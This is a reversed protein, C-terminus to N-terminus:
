RGNPTVFPRAIASFESIVIGNMRRHRASWGKWGGEEGEEDEEGGAEGLDQGEERAAYGVGEFGGGLELQGQALGDADLPSGDPFM